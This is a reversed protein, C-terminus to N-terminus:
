RGRGGRRSRRRSDDISLRSSQAREVAVREARAVTGDTLAYDHQVRADVALTDGSARYQRMKRVTGTITGYSGGVDPLGNISLSTNAIASVILIVAVVVLLEILSFGRAALSHEPKHEQDRGEGVTTRSKKREASTCIPITLARTM